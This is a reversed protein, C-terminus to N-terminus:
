KEGCSARHSPHPTRANSPGQRAPAAKRQPRSRPDVADTPRELIHERSREGISTGSDILTRASGCGAAPGPPAFRASTDADCWGLKREFNGDGRGFEGHTASARATPDRSYCRAPHPASVSLSKPNPRTGAPWIGRGTLRVACTLSVERPPAHRSVRCFAARFRLRGPRATPANVELPHTAWNRSSGPLLPRPMRQRVGNKAGWLCPLRTRDEPLSLIWVAVRSVLGVDAARADRERIVHLAGGREGSV